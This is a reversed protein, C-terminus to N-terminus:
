LRIITPLTPESCMQCNWVNLLRDLSKGTLGSYVFVMASWMWVSGIM